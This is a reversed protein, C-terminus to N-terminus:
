RSQCSNWLSITTSMEDDERRRTKKEEERRQRRRTTKEDEDQRRRKEEDETKTKDDDQRRRTTKDEQRRKDDDEEPCRRRLTADRRWIRTQKPLPPWRGPMTGHEQWMARHTITRDQACIAAICPLVAPGGHSRARRMEAPVPTTPHLQRRGRDPCSSRRARGRGGGRPKRSRRPMPVQHPRTNLTQADACPRGQRRAQIEGHPSSRSATPPTSPTPQSFATSDAGRDGHGQNRGHRPPDGRAPLTTSRTLMNPLTSHCDVCPEMSTNRASTAVRVAQAWVVTASTSICTLLPTPGSSAKPEYWAAAACAAALVVHVAAKPASALSPHQSWHYMSSPCSM